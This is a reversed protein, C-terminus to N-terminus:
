SDSVLLAELERLNFRATANGSGSQRHKGSRINATILVKPESESCEFLVCADHRTSQASYGVGVNLLRHELDKESDVSVMLEIPSHETITGEAVDGILLPEFDELLRMAQLAAERLERLQDATDPCYLSQHAQLAARIETEAIQSAEALTVGIRKAAKMRARSWDLGSEMMIRAAIDSLEARQKRDM